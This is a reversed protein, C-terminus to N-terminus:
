RNPKLQSASAFFLQFASADKVTRCLARGIALRHTRGCIPCPYRTIHVLPTSPRPDLPSPQTLRLREMEERVEAALDLLRPSLPRSTYADSQRRKQGRAETRRGGDETKM